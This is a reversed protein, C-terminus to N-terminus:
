EKDEKTETKKKGFGSKKARERAAAARAESKVRIIYGSEIYLQVQKDEAATPKVSFDITITKNNPNVKSLYKKDAM